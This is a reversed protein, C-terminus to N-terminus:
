YVLLFVTLSHKGPYGRKWAENLEILFKYNGISGSDIVPAL